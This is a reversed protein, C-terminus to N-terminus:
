PVWITGTQQRVILLTDIWWWQLALGILCCAVVFWVRRRPSTGPEPSGVLIRASPFAPLLFAPDSFAIAEVDFHALFCWSDPDSDLPPKRRFNIQLM